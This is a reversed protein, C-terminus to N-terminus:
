VVSAPDNPVRLGLPENVVVATVDLWGRSAHSKSCLPTIVEVMSHRPPPHPHVIVLVVKAPNRPKGWKHYYQEDDRLTFITRIFENLYDPNRKMEESFNNHSCSSTVLTLDLDINIRQNTVERETGATCSTSDYNVYPCVHCAKDDINLFLGAPCAVCSLNQLSYYNEPSCDDVCQESTWAEKFMTTKGLPCDVCVDGESYDQDAEALTKYHKVYFIEINGESTTIVRSLNALHEYVTRALDFAYTSDFSVQLVAIAHQTGIQTSNVLCSPSLYYYKSTVWQNIVSCLSSATDGPNNTKTFNVRVFNNSISAEAPVTVAAMVTLLLVLWGTWATAM